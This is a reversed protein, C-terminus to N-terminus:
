FIVPLSTLARLASHIRRLGGLRAASEQRIDSYGGVVLKSRKLNGKSILFVLETM